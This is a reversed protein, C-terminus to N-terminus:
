RLYLPLFPSGDRRILSGLSVFASAVSLLTLLASSASSWHFFGSSPACGTSFSWLFIGYIQRISLESFSVSLLFACGIHQIPFSIFFSSISWALISMLM